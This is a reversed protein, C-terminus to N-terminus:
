KFQPWAIEISGYAEQIQAVPLYVDDSVIVWDSFDPFLQVWTDGNFFNLTRNEVVLQGIEPSSMNEVVQFRILSRRPLHSTYTTEQLKTLSFRLWEGEVRYYLKGDRVFMQGTIGPSGSNFIKPLTVKRLLGGVPANATRKAVRVLLM